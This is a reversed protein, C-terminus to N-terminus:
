HKLTQDEDAHRFQVPVLRRDQGTSSVHLCASTLQYVDKDGRYGRTQEVRSLLLACKSCHLVYYMYCFVGGVTFIDVYMFM